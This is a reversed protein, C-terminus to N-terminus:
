WKINNCKYITRYVPVTVAAVVCCGIGSVVVDVVVVVTVVIRSEVATNTVVVLGAVAVPM